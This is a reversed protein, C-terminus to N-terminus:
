EVPQPSDSGCYQQTCFGDIPACIGCSRNCCYEGPGCTNDGCPEGGGGSVPQCIGACDAGGNNPDCDDNPDDVCEYGDPCPTGSIGGCYMPPPEETAPRTCRKGHRSADPACILDPCCQKSNGCSLGEGRCKRKADAQTVGALSLAGALAVGGFAKLFSRRSTNTVLLKALEDFDRDRNDM